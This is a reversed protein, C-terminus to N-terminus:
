TVDILEQHVLVRYKAVRVVKNTGSSDEVANLAVLHKYLVNAPLSCSGLNGINKSIVSSAAQQLRVTNNFEDLDIRSGSDGANDVVFIM